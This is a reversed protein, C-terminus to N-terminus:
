PVSAAQYQWVWSQLHIVGGQDDQPEQYATVGAMQDCGGVPVMARLRVTVGQPTGSQPPAETLVDVTAVPTPLLVWWTDEQCTPGGDPGVSADSLPAADPGVSADPHLGADHHIQGGGMTRGGCAVLLAVPLSIAAPSIRHM